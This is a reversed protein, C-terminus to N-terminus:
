ANQEHTPTWQADSKSDGVMAPGNPRGRLLILAGYFALFFLIRYGSQRGLPMCDGERRLDRNPTM